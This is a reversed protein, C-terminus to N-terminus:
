LVFKQGMVSVTTNNHQHCVYLIGTVCENIWVCVHESVACFSVGTSVYLTAFHLSVSAKHSTSQAGSFVCLYM